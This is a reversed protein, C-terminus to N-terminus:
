QALTIRGFGEILNEWFFGNQVFLAFRVIGPANPDPKIREYIIPMIILGILFSLVITIVLRNNTNGVTITGRLFASAITGLVIGLYMIIQEYLSLQKTRAAIVTSEPM